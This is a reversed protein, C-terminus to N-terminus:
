LFSAKLDKEVEIAQLILSKINVLHNWECERLTIGDTWCLKDDETIFWRRIHLVRHPYSISAFVNNGLPYSVSIPDRKKVKHFTRCLNSEHALLTYLQGETLVIGNKREKTEWSRQHIDIEVGTKTSKIEAFLGCGLNFLNQHEYLQADPISINNKECYERLLMTGAPTHVEIDSNRLGNKNLHQAADAITTWKRYFAGPFEFVSERCNSWKVFIGPLRGIVVSYFADTTGCREYFTDLSMVGEKTHVRINEFGHENLSHVAERITKFKRVKQPSMLTTTIVLDWSLFVGTNEGSYVAYYM